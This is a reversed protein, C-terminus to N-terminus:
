RNNHRFDHSVLVVLDQNVFEGYKILLDLSPKRQGANLKTLKDRPVGLYEALEELRYSYKTDHLLERRTSDFKSYLMHAYTENLPLRVTPDIFFETRANLVNAYAALFDISVSAVRGSERDRIYKESCKLRKAIEQVNYERTQLNQKRYEREAAFFKLLEKTTRFRTQEM